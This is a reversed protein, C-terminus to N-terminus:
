WTLSAKYSFLALFTLVLLTAIATGGIFLSSFWRSDFKLHMFYMLILVAKIASLVLLVAIKLIGILGDGPLFSVAVEIGTVVALIIAIRIYSRDDMPVHHEDAAAPQPLVKAM